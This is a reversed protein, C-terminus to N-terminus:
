APEAPFGSLFPSPAGHWSVYLQERARTCAVFVLCRERQLDQAHTLEDEEAPTIASPSPVQHEGLGIVAVCRFELGKMRHMTGVRVAGDQGSTKALSRAPIGRSTLANAASDALMNSRAAVGIEAPEVGADLWERVKRGLADLEATQVAFGALHPPLGHLQSRCGAVTALGGDMDDIPEGRLMGLSWALIEATTRYNITLRASRGAVHVGVERLSVRNHYIRQHTDGAIFLDDPGEAVAARLLRWQLPHLDQAEDVVIHRYPKDPRGNLLRTAEACVTEYTWLDRQRLEEQFEWVAQWLQAKQRSGLRRGRGARKASLYGAADTVQQALVVHRWEEALFTETFPLALRKAIRRWIAKEEADRLIAPRGHREAFIQHSLQDVHRIEIRDLVDPSDALLRMGAELSASLTSTFTTVLM